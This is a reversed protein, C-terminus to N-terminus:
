LVANVINVMKMSNSGKILVTVNESLSLKLVDILKQQDDFHQANKGFATAAHASMAGYCLLKKIGKKLAYEGMESHLNEAGEGLEKMDGLVLFTNESRHTLIDIAAKVSTPNANYSDDIITAGNLGKQVNLRGYEPTVTELGKKITEIPIELAYAVAAAALANTINHQGLIPLHVISRADGCLLTFAAKGDEMICVDSAMVISTVRDSDSGSGNVISLVDSKRYDSGSGNVIALADHAFTIVRHNGNLKKWYDCYPDDANIVAIGTTELTSYIDGKEKAINDVSGFFEVHVGAVMTIVSVTPKAIATLAAIEGPHNTGIELVAFDHDPKLQLLTLPLGIDNNFSKQSALVNGALKLINELLARTTTKGCSGTIAIVPIHVSDRYFCALDILAKRTNNVRISSISTKIDRDIVVVAANKKAIDAIFDHGDFFEGKIAFFCDGSKIARSDISVNEFEADNGHLKGNLIIALESLKM